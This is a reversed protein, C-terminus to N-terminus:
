SITFDINIMGTIPTNNTISKGDNGTWKDPNMLNIFLVAGDNLVYTKGNIYQTLDENEGLVYKGEATRLYAGTIGTIAIEQGTTLRKGIPIALKIITQNTTIYGSVYTDTITYEGESYVIGLKQQLNKLDSNENGLKIVSCGSSSLIIAVLLFLVIATKKM